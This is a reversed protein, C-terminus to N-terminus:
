VPGYVLLCSQQGFHSFLSPSKWYEDVLETCDLWFYGCIALEGEFEVIRIM